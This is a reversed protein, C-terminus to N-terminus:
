DKGLVHDSVGKMMRRREERPSLGKEIIGEFDLLNPAPKIFIGNENPEISVRDHPKMKLQKRLKAPLTIQGKTSITAFPM